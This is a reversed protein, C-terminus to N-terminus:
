RGGAGPVGRAARLLAGRARRRRPRPLRAPPGRAARHAAGRRRPRRPVHGDARRQPRQPRRPTPAPRPRGGPPLLARRRRRVARLLHRHERPRPRAPRRRDADQRGGVERLPTRRRARRSGRRGRAASRQRCRHQYSTSRAPPSPTIIPARGRSPMWVGTCPRRAAPSSIEGLRLRGSVCRCLSHLAASPHQVSGCLPPASLLRLHIRAM